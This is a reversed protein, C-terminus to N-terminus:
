AQKRRRELLGLGGTVIAIVSGMGAPDIEPVPSPPSVPQVQFMSDNGPETSLNFTGTSVLDNWTGGGYLM